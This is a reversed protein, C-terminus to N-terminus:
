PRRRYDHLHESQAHTHPAYGLGRLAHAIRTDLRHWDRAPVGDDEIRGVQELLDPHRTKLRAAFKTCGLGETLVQRGGITYPSSCWPRPCVLMRDVVGAAPVIDQEVVMLDGPDRWATAMLMWYGQDGSVEAPAAQHEVMWHRTRDHLMGQVYPVVTTM